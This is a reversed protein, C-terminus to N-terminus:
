NEEKVPASAGPTLEAILDDLCKLYGNVYNLNSVLQEQQKALDARKAHLDM